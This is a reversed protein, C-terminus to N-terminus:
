KIKIIKKLTATKRKYQSRVRVAINNELKTQLFFNCKKYARFSANRTNSKPPWRYVVNDANCYIYMITNQQKSEAECNQNDALNEIKQNHFLNFINM